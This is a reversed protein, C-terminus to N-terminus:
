GGKCTQRRYALLMFTNSITRGVFVVWMPTPLVFLKNVVFTIHLMGGICIYPYILLLVSATTLHKRCILVGTCSHCSNLYVPRQESNCADRVQPSPQGCTGSGLQIRNRKQRVFGEFHQSKNHESEM